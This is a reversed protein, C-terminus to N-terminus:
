PAQWPPVGALQRLADDYSKARYYEGHTGIGVMYGTTDLEEAYRDIENLRSRDATSMATSMAPFGLFDSARWLSIWRVPTGEGTGDCVLTGSLLGVAPQEASVARGPVVALERQADFDATWPDAGWLRPRRSPLTGLVDPGLLEPLMRGFFPRLQVGFTLLSLRSLQSRTSEVSALLAISSVALVAGMSHAALVARRDPRRLWANLRGAIEPVAREAYCPPGFPHGTQPLYCAIDWAIGLPRTGGSSAGTALLGVLLVGVGTLGLMGIDLINIILQENSSISWLSQSQTTAWWIWVVAVLLAAGLTVAIVAVAPEVLHLRAATRRKADIRALLAQPSPPLVGGGPIPIPSAPPAGWAEVRATVNRPRLFAIALVVLLSVVLGVLVLAGMAVYSRSVQLDAAGAAEADGETWGLLATPGKSGNLWDGAMVVVIASSGVAIALALTM